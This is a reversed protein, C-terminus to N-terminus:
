KRNAARSDITVLRGRMAFLPVITAQDARFKTLIEDTPQNTLVVAASGGQQM